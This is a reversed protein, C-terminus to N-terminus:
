TRQNPGDNLDSRTVRKITIESFIQEQEVSLIRQKIMELLALFTVIVETKDKATALLDSLKTEIKESLTNQLASIKDQISIAEKVTAKPLNNIEELQKLIGLIIQHLMDASVEPDPYFNIREEFTVDRTFSQKRRNDLTHLYKAAEKFQKYLLLRKELDIAIEEDEKDLELTPLIAKSKIVLLKAAVSLYDALQTPDLVELTKIHQLFQETVAALAIQTIDMEQQEILQLLLDLPGNFEKVQVKM